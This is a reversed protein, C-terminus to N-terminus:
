VNKGGDAFYAQVDPRRLVVFTFIGLATGLPFNPLILVAYILCGLRQKGRPLWYGVLINWAVFLLGFTLSFVLVGHHVKELLSLLAEPSPSGQYADTEYMSRMFSTLIPILLALALNSCIGLVAKAWYAYGLLKLYEASKASLDGAAATAPSDPSM